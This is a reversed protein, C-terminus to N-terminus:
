VQNFSQCPFIYNSLFFIFFKSLHKRYRVKTENIIHLDVACVVVAKMMAMAAISILIPEVHPLM